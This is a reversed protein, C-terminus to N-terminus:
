ASRRLPAHPSSLNQAVFSWDILRDFFTQVYRARENRYDLYYAHEWLDITLLPTDDCLLPNDADDTAYVKLTDGSAARGLWAWGSGFEANAAALFKKRFEDFSGFDHEIAKLLAGSPTGGGTPKMCRWYFGHNWVQAANNFTSGDSTRVIEELSREALPTGGIAKELKKLYGAHHKGYHYELTEASIHPELADKPYPLPDLNFKM